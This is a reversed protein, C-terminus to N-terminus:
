HAIYRGKNPLSSSFVSHWSIDAVSFVLKFIFKRKILFYFSLAM